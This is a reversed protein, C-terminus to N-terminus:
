KLILIKKRNGKAKYSCHVWAPNEKTGYEWILQDFDLNEKIYNFINVNDVRRYIDADMDIAEGKCHQSTKSGGIRKNLEVSRFFSSIGIPVGFHERVPEFIMKAVLRMSELQKEDPTNDIKNASATNSHVAEKGSIHKSIREM